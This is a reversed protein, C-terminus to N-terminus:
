RYGLRASRGRGKDECMDSNDIRRPRWSLRIHRHNDLFITNLGHARSARSRDGFSGLDLDNIGRSFKQNRPQPIHVGM